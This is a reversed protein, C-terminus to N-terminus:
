AHPAEQLMRAAQYANVSVFWWDRTGGIIECPIMRDRIRIRRSKDNSKWRVSSRLVKWVTMNLDPHANAADFANMRLELPTAPSKPGVYGTGGLEKSLKEQPDILEVHTEKM